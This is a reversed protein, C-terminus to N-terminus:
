KNLLDSVHHLFLFKDGYSQPNLRAEFSEMGEGDAVEHVGGFSKSVWITTWALAEEFYGWPFDSM